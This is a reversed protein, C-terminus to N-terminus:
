TPIFCSSIEVRSKIIWNYEEHRFMLVEKQSNFPEATTFGIDDFGLKLAEIIINDKTLINVTL